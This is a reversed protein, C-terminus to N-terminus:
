CVNVVKLEIITTRGLDIGYGAWDGGNLRQDIGGIGISANDSESICAGDNDAIM